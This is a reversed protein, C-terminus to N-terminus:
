FLIKPHLQDDFYFVSSYLKWYCAMQKHISGTIQNSKGFILLLGWLHLSFVVLFQTTTVTVRFVEENCLRLYKKGQSKRFANMKKHHNSSLLGYFLANQWKIQMTCSSHTTWPPQIGVTLHLFISIHLISCTNLSLWCNPEGETEMDDREQTMGRRTSYLRQSVYLFHKCLIIVFM